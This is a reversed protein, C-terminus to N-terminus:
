VPQVAYYLRAGIGGENLLLEAADGHVLEFQSSSKFAKMTYSHMQNDDLGGGPWPMVLLEVRQQQLAEEVRKTGLAGRGGAKAFDIIEEVLEMEMRREYDLAVPLVRETIQQETDHMTIPMIAVLDRTVEEHLLEKLAMASKEAGGLILRHRGEKQVLERIKQAVDRYLRTIWEQMMDDFLDKGSGSKPQGGTRHPASPPHFIDLERFDFEHRDTKIKDDLQIDGLYTRFFHAREQDIRVVLYPEYEDMLWLMPVVMPEGLSADNQHPLVPLEYTAEDEPSFFAVLGKSSPQYNAFFTEVRERLGKWNRKQEDSLNQEQEQLANKVYIMWAPQDSHNERLENSVQLYVSFVPQQMNRVMDRVDDFDFM